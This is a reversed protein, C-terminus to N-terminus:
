CAEESTCEFWEMYLVSRISNIMRTEGPHVLINHYWDLMEQQKSQPVLIRNNEHILKVDEVM